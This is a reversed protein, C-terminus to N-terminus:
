VPAPRRRVVVVTVDDIQHPPMRRMLREVLAGADGPGGLEPAFDALKLLREGTEVLGDSHVVLTDGPELAAEGERFGDPAVVGLPMSRQPLAM